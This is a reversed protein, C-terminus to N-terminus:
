RHKNRKSGRGRRDGTDETAEDAGSGGAVRLTFRKLADIEDPRLPRIAGKPLGILRLPGFRVRELRKVDSGVTACMRRIQRNLGQTITMELRTTERTRRLVKVRAAAKGERLFVGARLKDVAADNMTGKVAVVYTKEVQYKPHTLVNTMEGDNTVLLLGETEADLRGVPYVRVRIERLLVGVSRRGRDDSMTTVFGRPKNLIFYQKRPERVPRGDVRIDADALVKTGLERIIRGDVTVHGALILAECARRSAVGRGALIKHLREESM